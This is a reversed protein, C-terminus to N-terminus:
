LATGVRVRGWADAKGSRIIASAKPWAKRYDTASDLAVKATSAEELNDDMWWLVGQFLLGPDKENKNLKMEKKLRKLVQRVAKQVSAHTSDILGSPKLYIKVSAPLNKENM